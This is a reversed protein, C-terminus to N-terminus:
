WSDRVERLERGEALATMWDRIMVEQGRTLHLDRTRAEWEATKGWASYLRPLLRLDIRLSKNLIRKLFAEAEAHAGSEILFAARDNLFALHNWQYTALAADCAAFLSRALEREGISAFLVPLRGRRELTPVWEEMGAQHFFDSRTERMLRGHVEILRNRDGIRHFFAVQREPENPFFADGPLASEEVLARALAVGQPGFAPLTELVCLADPAAPDLDSLLARAAPELRGRYHAVLLNHLWRNTAPARLTGLLDPM